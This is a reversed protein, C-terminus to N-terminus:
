EQIKNGVQGEGSRERYASNHSSLIFTKENCLRDNNKGDERNIGKAKDRKRREDKSQDAYKLICEHDSEM